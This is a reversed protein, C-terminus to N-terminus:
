CSPIEKRGKFSGPVSFGIKSSVNYIEILLILLSYIGLSPLHHDLLVTWSLAAQLESHSPWLCFVVFLIWYNIIALFLINLCSWHSPLLQSSCLLTQTPGAASTLSLSFSFCFVGETRTLSIKGWCKWCYVRSDRKKVYFIWKKTNLGRMISLFYFAHLELTM